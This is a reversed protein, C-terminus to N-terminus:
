CVELESLAMGVRAIKRSLVPSSLPERLLKIGVVVSEGGEILQAPFLIMLSCREFYM